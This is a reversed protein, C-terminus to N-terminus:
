PEVLNKIAEVLKQYEKLLEEVEGLQLEKVDKVEVFRQNPAPLKKLKALAMNAEDSPHVAMGEIALGKPEETTPSLVSPPTSTASAPQVPRGFGRFGIGGLRNLPNLSNGFSRVSEIATLGQGTPPSASVPPASAHSAPSSSAFAVRRKDTSGGSRASDASRERVMSRGGILDLLKSDSPKSVGNVDLPDDFLAHHHDGTASGTADEDAPPNVIKRADELTEPIVTPSRVSSTDSPLASFAKRQENEQAQQEKLRGFVFKFSDNLTNNITDFASDATSLFSERGAEIRNDAKKILNNLREQPNSTRSSTSPAPSIDARSRSSPSTVSLPSADTKIGDGNMLPLPAKGASSTSTFSQGRARPPGEPAEDARLSSLDVTELFSIAAELNVLCYAAEGDMKNTARFRQIFNLNSIANMSEAPTTILTYILTPLVEDASSSSPHVQSLTEVISKHAATLYRLKGLPYREENMKLIDERATGLLLDIEEKKEEVIQRAGDTNVHLEKLGIGVVALAATKSSLKSDREEDDTSRHRWLREYLRQCVGREVAEELAIRKLELLRRARRRNSIEKPTLMQQEGLQKTSSNSRSRNKLQVTPKDIDRRAPSSERSIRSSLAAIHTAIVGEARTYFDQFLESLSDASLPTPHVKANLSELFRESLSKIEIPLEDFSEPLKIPTGDTHELPDEDTDGDRSEFVDGNQDQSLVQSLLSHAQGEKLEARMGAHFTNAKSLPEPAEPEYRSFSKSM